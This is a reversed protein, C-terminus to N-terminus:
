EKFLNGLYELVKELQPETLKVRLEIGDLFSLYCRNPLKGEFKKTLRSTELFYSNKAENEAKIAAEEIKYLAELEQVKEVLEDTEIAGNKIMVRRSIKKYDRAHIYLSIGKMPRRFSHSDVSIYGVNVNNIKGNEISTKFTIKFINKITEWPRITDIDVLPIQM